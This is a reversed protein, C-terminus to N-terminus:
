IKVPPTGAFESEGYVGSVFTRLSAENDYSNVFTKANECYQRFVYPSGFSAVITKESDYVLSNHITVAAAGTPNPTDASLMYAYILLDYNKDVTRFDVHYRGCNCFVEVEAGHKEFEEKLIDLKKLKKEDTAIGVIRIKKYKEKDIPILKNKIMYASKPALREAVSEAFERDPIRTKKYLKQKMRMVRGFADEVRSMPIEGREVAGVINEVTYLQPWLLMDIGIEYCKVEAQEQEYEWRLFGGMDLADSVVVGEFSMENKLVKTILDYSLTAPPYIGDIGDNQLAPCSIHGAMIAAVGSDIAKQFMKGSKEFWEERGLSNESKVIHQNRYDIGDGPFHKATALVGNEQYGKILAGLLKSDRKVDDGLARTNVILNLPNINLDSVPAFTWNVGLEASDKAIAKAYDYALSEDDAAGVAMLPPLEVAGPKIRSLGNEGDMCVLLPIKSYKQYEGAINQANTTKNYTVVETGVFVGGVPYQKMFNEISGFQKIHEDPRAKVIISQCVKERLSLDM